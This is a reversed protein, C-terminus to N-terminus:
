LYYAPTCNKCYGCVTIIEGTVSSFEFGTKKLDLRICKENTFAPNLESWTIDGNVLIMDPNPCTYCLTDSKYKFPYSTSCKLDKFNMIMYEFIGNGNHSYTVGTATINFRYFSNLTLIHPMSPIGFLM